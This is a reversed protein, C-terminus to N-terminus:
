RITFVLLLTYIHRIYLSFSRYAYLRELFRSSLFCDAITRPKVLLPIIHLSNSLQVFFISNLFRPLNKHQTCYLHFVLRLFHCLSNRFLFFITIPFSLYHITSDTICTVTKLTLTPVAFVQEPNCGKTIHKQSVDLIHIDGTQFKFVFDAVYEKKIREGHMNKCEIKM